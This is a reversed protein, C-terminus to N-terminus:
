TVIESAPDFGHLPQSRETTRGDNFFFIRHGLVSVQRAVSNTWEKQEVM